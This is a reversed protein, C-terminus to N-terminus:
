ASCNQDNSQTPRREGSGDAFGAVQNRGNAKARYMAADAAQVVREVTTGAGPYRAGGISASLGGIRQDRFTVELGAIRARIREAVARAEQETLDPLLVVFEEGGFRGVADARRVTATITDAVARLVADGALHGHTDNVRKFHDLDVMLVTVPGAGALQQRAVRQWGAANWVGTKADQRADSELQGILAARHLVFLPAIALVALEPQTVLVIATMAGLCLTAFELLHDAWGFLVSRLPRLNRDLTPIILILNLLFYGAIGVIIPAVGTGVAMAARQIAYCTLVLAAAGFVTRFVHVRKLRYWSRLHLHTYLVVIAVTVLSMPLLLAAPLLWVSTMNIYGTETTRRRAREVQRGLEAQTVGMAVLLALVALDRASVAVGVTTAVTVGVAALSVVLHYGVQRPRQRWLPWRHVRLLRGAPLDNAASM